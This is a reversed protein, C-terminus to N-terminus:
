CAPTAGVIPGLVRGLDAAFRPPMFADTVRRRAHAGLEAALHQNQFLRVIAATLDQPRAPDVILGNVGDDIIEQAAGPAAICPRGLSMAELLVLGFGERSSPLLLMAADRYLAALAAPEVAGLFHVAHDLGRQRARAELRPRDDGEGAVVLRAAPVAATVAAWIDLLRDHGKYRENSAMRGVILAFPAAPAVRSPSPAALPPVAPRCVDIAYASLRPNAARFEHATHASIAIRGAARRYIRARLPSFRRWAEIGVLVSIVSAGRAMMPAAVPLLHAHMVMVVTRRHDDFAASVGRAAFRLRSGAAGWTVARGATFAPAPEALSWAALPCSPFAAAMASMTARALCSLGDRGDLTPTLVILRTM